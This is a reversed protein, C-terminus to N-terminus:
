PQETEFIVTVQTPEILDIRLGEPKVVLPIRIQQKLALDSINVPDTTVSVIKKLDRESARIKIDPPSVVIKAKDPLTGVITPVVKLM